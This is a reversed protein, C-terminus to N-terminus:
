NSPFNLLEHHRIFNKKYKFMYENLQLVDQVNSRFSLFKM